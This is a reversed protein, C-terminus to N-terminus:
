AASREAWARNEPRRYCHRAERVTESILLATQAMRAAYIHQGPPAAELESGYCDAVHVWIREGIWEKPVPWYQRGFLVTGDRRVLRMGGLTYGDPAKIDQECRPTSQRRKMPVRAEEHGHLPHCEVHHEDGRRFQGPLIPKGCGKCNTM